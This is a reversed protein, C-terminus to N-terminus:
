RRCRIVPYGPPRPRAPRARHWRRLLGGRTGAGRPRCGAGRGSGTGHEPLPTRLTSRASRSGPRRPSGHCAAPANSRRTGRPCSGASRPRPSPRTGRPRPGPRRPTAKTNQFWGIHSACTGEPIANSRVHVAPEDGVPQEVPDLDDVHVAVAVLRELDCEVVVEGDEGVGVDVSEDVPGELHELAAVSRDCEYECPLPRGCRQLLRQEGAPGHDEEVVVSRSLSGSRRGVVPSSRSTSFATVAGSVWGMWTKPLSPPWCPACGTSATRSSKKTSRQLPPDPGRAGEGMGGGWGDATRSTSVGLEVGRSAPPRQHRNLGVRSAPLGPPGCLWGSWRDAGVGLGITPPTGLGRREVADDPLVQLGVEGQGIFEVGPPSACFDSTVAGEEASGNGSRGPM